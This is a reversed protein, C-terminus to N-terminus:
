KIKNGSTQEEKPLEKREGDVLKAIQTLSGDMEKRCIIIGYNGTLIVEGNKIEWKLEDNRRDWGRHQVVGSNTFIARNTKGEMTLYEYTGVVKEEEETLSKSCGVAVLMIIITILNKM